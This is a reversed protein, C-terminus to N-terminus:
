QPDLGDDAAPPRSHLEHGAQVATPAHSPTLYLLLASCLLAVATALQMALGAAASGASVTASGAMWATVIAACIVVSLLLPLGRHLAVARVLLSVASIVLLSGLIAHMTLLLPGDILASGFAGFLGEGHASAPAQGYLGTGFSFEVLLMVVAAFANTRLRAIPTTTM